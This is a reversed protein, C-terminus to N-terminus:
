LASIMVYQTVSHSLTHAKDHYCLSINSWTIVYHYIQYIVFHYIQYIVHLMIIYKIYVMYIYKFVLSMNHIKALYCVTNHVQM